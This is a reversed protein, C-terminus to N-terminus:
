ASVWVVGSILLYNKEYQSRVLMSKKSLKSENKGIHVIIIIIITIQTPESTVNLYFLMLEQNTYASFM